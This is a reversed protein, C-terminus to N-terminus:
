LVAEARIRFDLFPLPSQIPNLSTQGAVAMEIPLYFHEQRIPGEGAHFGHFEIQILRRPSVAVDTLAHRTLLALIDGLM